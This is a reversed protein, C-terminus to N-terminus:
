GLVELDGHGDPSEALVELDGHGAIAARPLVGTVAGSASVLLAALVIAIGKKVAVGEESLPCRARKSETTSQSVRARAWAGRAGTDRRSEDDGSFNRGSSAGFKM